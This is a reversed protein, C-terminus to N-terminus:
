ERKVCGCHQCEWLTEPVTDANYGSGRVKFRHNGNTVPCPYSCNDYDSGGHQTDIDSDINDGIDIHQYCYEEGDMANRSCQRGDKTIGECKMPFTHAHSEHNGGRYDYYGGVHQARVENPRIQKYLGSIDIGRQKGLIKARDMYPKNNGNANAFVNARELIQELGFNEGPYSTLKGNKDAEFFTPITRINLARGVKNTRPDMTHVAYAQYGPKSNLQKALETYTEKKSICYPCYAAYAMVLGPGGKLVTEPGSFDFNDDTLEIVDTGEYLGPM